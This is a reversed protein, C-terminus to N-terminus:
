DMNNPAKVEYSLHLVGIKFSLRMGKKDVM